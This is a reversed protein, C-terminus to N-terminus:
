RSLGVRRTGRLFNFIEKLKEQRHLPLELTGRLTDLIWGLIVKKMLM